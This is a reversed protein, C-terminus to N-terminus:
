FLQISSVTVAAFAIGAYRRGLNQSLPGAVASGLVQGVGTMSIWLSTWISPLYLIKHVPDFNGFYIEFSPM